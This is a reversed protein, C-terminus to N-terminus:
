SRHISSCLSCDPNVVGRRVHWREHGGRQGLGQAAKSRRRRGQPTNAAQKKPTAWRCNDPEYDGDGDIRDMTTGPPRPGMDRLFAVFSRLWRDCVKIGRGGYRPTSHLGAAGVRLSSVIWSTYTPSGTMGHFSGPWRNRM